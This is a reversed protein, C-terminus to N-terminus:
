VAPGTTLPTHTAFGALQPKVAQSPLQVGGGVAESQGEEGLQLVLSCCRNMHGGRGAAAQGSGERARGEADSGKQTNTRASSLHLFAHTVQERHNEQATPNSPCISVISKEQVWRQTAPSTVVPM